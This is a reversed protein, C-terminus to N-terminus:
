SAAIEANNDANNKNPARSKWNKKAGAYLVGNHFELQSNKKFIIQKDITCDDRREFPHRVTTLRLFNAVAFSCFSNAAFM